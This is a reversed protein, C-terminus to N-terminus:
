RIPVFAFWYVKPVALFIDSFYRKVKGGQKGEVQRNERREEKEWARMGTARNAWEQDEKV